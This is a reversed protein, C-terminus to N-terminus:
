KWVKKDIIKKIHSHSVNYEKALKRYSTNGKKYKERIEKVIEPNLKVYDRRHNNEIPTVLELNELRNDDRIGNIHDVEMNSMDVDPNHYQYIFRNSRWTKKKKEPYKETNWETFQKYGKYHTQQKMLKGNANYINGDKDAYYNM